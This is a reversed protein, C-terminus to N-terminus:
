IKADPQSLYDTLTIKFGIRNHQYRLHGSLNNWALSLTETHIKHFLEISILPM